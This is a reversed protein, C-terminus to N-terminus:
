LVFITQAVFLTAEQQHLAHCPVFHSSASSPLNDSTSHSASVGHLSGRWDRAKSSGDMRM